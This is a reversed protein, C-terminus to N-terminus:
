HRVLYKFLSDGLITYKHTSAFSGPSLLTEIEWECPVSEMKGPGDHPHITSLFPQRFLLSHETGRGGLEAAFLSVPLVWTGFAAVESTSMSSSDPNAM